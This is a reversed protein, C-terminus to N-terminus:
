KTADETMILNGFCAPILSAANALTSATVFNDPRLSVLLLKDQLKSSEQNSHAIFDWLLIQM